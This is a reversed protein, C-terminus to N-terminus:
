ERRQRKASAALHPLDVLRQNVDRPHDLVFSAYEKMLLGWVDEGVEAGPALAHALGLVCGTPNIPMAEILSALVDETLGRWSGHAAGILEGTADTLVVPVCDASQIALAVGPLDSWMSDAQPLLVFKERQHREIHICAYGHVQDLWQMHLAQATGKLGESAEVTLQQQLFTRLSARNLAVSAPDDGVKLGLNFSALAAARSAGVNGLAHRTTTGAVIHAPAAWRANLWGSSAQM